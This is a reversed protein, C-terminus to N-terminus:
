FKGETQGTFVNVNIARPDGLVVFRINRMYRQAVRQVDAPTVARLRNIFEASNRWGGGTLEAQALDGAQAANTEQGVYYNTLYGAVSAKIDDQDIAGEVAGSEDPALKLTKGRQLRAIEYLMVQVAQNADVATVYIGGLNAGQSRLFADPAYSLNRRFRVEELVRQSLMSAAIRM